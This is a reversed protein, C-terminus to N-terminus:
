AASWAVYRDQRHNIWIVANMALAGVISALVLRWEVALLSVILVALDIGMQFKGARIGYKDQLYLALINIGGLSAQHRFLVIFGMGLMLGGVVGAYFPQLKGIEIFYAHTESMVSVLAVACFTKVTFRWGMRMLALIYFPLNIVFFAVGFPIAALYYALFAVGSTGGTLLGAKKFLVIGFSIFLTGVLIAFIDEGLSHRPASVDLNSM